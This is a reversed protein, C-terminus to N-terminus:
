GNRCRDYWPAACGPEAASTSHRVSARTAVARRWSSSLSRVENNRDLQDRSLNLLLVVEPHVDAAVAPLWAEDVELVALAGPEGEGLAAALGAPMNAGRLNTVIPGASSLAASLLRTTTTKGNTGSVLAARHGEALTGLAHRDVALLVRGGIVSGNGRGLRRSLSAVAHGLTTATRTRVPLTKPAM